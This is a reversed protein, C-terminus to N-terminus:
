CLLTWFLPAAPRRLWLGSCLLSRQALQLVEEDDCVPDSVPTRRAVLLAVAAFTQSCFPLVLSFLPPLALVCRPAAEHWLWEALPRSHNASAKERRGQGRM